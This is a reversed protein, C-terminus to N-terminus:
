LVNCNNKAFCLEFFVALIQFILRNQFNAFIPVFCLSYGKSFRWKPDFILFTFFYALFTEVLCQLQEICFVARFFCSVNSFHSWKSFQGFLGCAHLPWLRRLITVKFWFNFICFLISFINSCSMATTRHLFRSSFVTIIRFILGYQVNSFIAM